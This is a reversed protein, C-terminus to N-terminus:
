INLNDYNIHNIKRCTYYSLFRRLYNVASKYLNSQYCYFFFCCTKNIKKERVSVNDERLDNENELVNYHQM